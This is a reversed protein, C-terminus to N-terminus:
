FASGQYWLLSQRYTKGSEDQGYLYDGNFWIKVIKM